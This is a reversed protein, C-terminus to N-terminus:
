SPPSRQRRDNRRMVVWGAPTTPVAGDPETDEAELRADCAVPPPEAARDAEVLPVLRSWPEDVSAEDGRDEVLGCAEERRM